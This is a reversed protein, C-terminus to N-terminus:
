TGEETSMATHLAGYGDSSNFLIDWRPDDHGTPKSAFVQEFVCLWFQESESGYPVYGQQARVSDFAHEVIGHVNCLSTTGM